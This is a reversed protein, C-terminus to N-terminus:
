LGTGLSLGVFTDDLYGRRFRTLEVRFNLRLRSDVSLLPRGRFGFGYQFLPRFGVQPTQTTGVQLTSFQHALGGGAQFFFSYAADEDVAFSLAPAVSYYHYNSAVNVLRTGDALTSYTWGVDLFLADRWWAESLLTRGFEWTFRAGWGFRPEGWTGRPSDLLMLGGHLQVFVGASPDDLGVLSRSRERAEARVLEDETRFPEDPEADDERASRAGVPGRRLREPDRDSEVEERDRRLRGRRRDGAPAAEAEDGEREAEDLERARRSERAKAKERREAKERAESKSRPPLKRPPPPEEVDDSYPLAEDDSSQARGPLPALTLLAAFTLWRAASM